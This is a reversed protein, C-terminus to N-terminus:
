SPPRAPAGLCFRPRRWFIIRESFRAALALYYFGVWSPVRNPLYQMVFAKQQKCSYNSLNISVDMSTSFLAGNSLTEQFKRLVKM